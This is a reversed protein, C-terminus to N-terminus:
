TPTHAILVITDCFVSGIPTFKLKLKGCTNINVKSTDSTSTNLVSSKYVIDPNVIGNTPVNNITQRLPIQISNNSHTLTQSDLNNNEM